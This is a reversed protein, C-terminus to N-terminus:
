QVKRTKPVYLHNVWFEPVNKKAVRECNEKLHKRSVSCPAITKLGNLGKYIGSAKFMDGIGLSIFVKNSNTDVLLFDNTAKVRYYIEM